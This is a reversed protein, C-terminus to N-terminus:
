GVLKEVVNDWTIQHKQISEFGQEGMKRALKRDDYLADMREAIARPDPPVIYGNIADEIIELTGGSDHCTIMAKKSHFAELTPYGYSDEDIPIYIGALAHAFLTIKEEESIWHDLLTVKEQLSYKEIIEKLPDTDAPSGAGAIILKVNSKTYRMAEIALFQRKHHTLRSPYFIADGYELAQYREPNMLPPYLVPAAIQNFKMLRDSVVQSNTYIKKATALSSNDTKFLLDRYALGEPTSPIDQYETGWLDYAGRHHHIFWVVKNPHNLMYSPTRITILLDASQSLDFLKLALMQEPMEVYNSSYPIKLVETEYGRERLVQALWDVIFTGGGEIFPVITSAIIIRM